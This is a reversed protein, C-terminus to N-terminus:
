QDEEHEYLFDSTKTIQRSLSIHTKDSTDCNNYLHKLITLQNILILKETKTM